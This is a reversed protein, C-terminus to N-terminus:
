VERDESESLIVIQFKAACTRAAATHIVRHPEFTRISTHLIIVDCKPVRHVDM